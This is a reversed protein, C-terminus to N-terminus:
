ETGQEHDQRALERALARILDHFQAQFHSPSAPKALAGSSSVAQRSSATGKDPPRRRGAISKRERAM